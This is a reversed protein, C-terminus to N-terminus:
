FNLTVGAIAQFPRPYINNDVGNAVEPDIGKYKTITFVNQVTAYARGSIKAGFLTLFSYGLTINDMKLFSANQVFYDSYVQNTEPTTIGIAVAETLRNGLYALQYVSGKGVNMSAALNHNYVYNGLSARM